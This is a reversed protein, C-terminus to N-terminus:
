KVTLTTKMGQEEHRGIPCYANYEGAPLDVTMTDTEGTKLDKSKEDIGGNEIELAHLRKGENRINFTIDGPTVTDPALRVYWEGLVVDVQQAGNAPASTAESETREPRQCGAAAIVILAVILIPLARRM